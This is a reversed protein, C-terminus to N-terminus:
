PTEEKEVFKGSAAPANLDNIGWDYGFHDVKPNRLQDLLARDAPNAYIRVYDM